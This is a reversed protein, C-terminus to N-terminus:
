LYGGSSYSVVRSSISSDTPLVPRIVGVAIKSGTRRQPVLTDLYLQLRDIEPAAIVAHAIEFLRADQSLLAASANFGAGGLEYPSTRLIFFINTLIIWHLRQPSM